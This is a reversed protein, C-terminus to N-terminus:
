LGTFWTIVEKFNGDIFHVAISQARTVDARIGPVSLCGEEMTDEGSLELIEPNVVVLPKEDEFDKMVSLDIVALSLRLGVQNASLGIGDAERMTEFM